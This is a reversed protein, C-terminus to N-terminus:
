EHRGRPRTSWLLRVAYVACTLLVAVLEHGFSIGVVHDVPGPALVTMGQHTHVIQNAHWVPDQCTPPFLVCPTVQVATSV